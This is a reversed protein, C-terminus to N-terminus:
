LMKRNRVLQPAVKQLQGYIKVYDAHLREHEKTLQMLANKARALQYTSTGQWFEKMLWPKIASQGVRSYRVPHNVGFRRASVAILGALMLLLAAKFKEM